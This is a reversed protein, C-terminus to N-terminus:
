LEWMWLAFIVRQISNNCYNRDNKEILMSTRYKRDRVKSIDLTLSKDFIKNLKRTEYSNEGIWETETNKGNEEDDKIDMPIDNDSDNDSQINEEFKILNNDSEIELDNTRKDSQDSHKSHEVIDADSEYHDPVTDMGVFPDCEIAECKIELKLYNEQAHQVSRHFQHFEDMKQWCVSCVYKPLTDTKSM